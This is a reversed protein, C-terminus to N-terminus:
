VRNYDPVWNKISRKIFSPALNEDVTRQVLAPLEEDSAFRLAMLQKMSLRSEFEELRKHTIQYFRLRLELRIIRDQNMLGYHQRVILSLLGMLALVISIVIWIEANEPYRISNRISWFLSAGLLPYFVFHHLPYYKTHNNYSQKEM